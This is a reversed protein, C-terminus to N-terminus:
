NINEGMELRSLLGQVHEKFDPPASGLAAKMYKVANAFDGLAAYGRALGANVYWVNPHLQANLQFTAMAEKGKGSGALQKGLDHLHYAPDQPPAEEKRLGGSSSEHIKHYTSKATSGIIPEAYKSLQDLSPAEWACTVHSQDERVMWSVLKVGQPAKSHNQIAKVFGDKDVIDHSSEILM